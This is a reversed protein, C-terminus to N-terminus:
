ETRREPSEALQYQRCLIPSRLAFRLRRGAGAPTQDQGPRSLPAPHRAIRKM